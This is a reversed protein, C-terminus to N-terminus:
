PHTDKKKEKKQIVMKKARIWVEQINSNSQEEISMKRCEAQQLSKERKVIKSVHM